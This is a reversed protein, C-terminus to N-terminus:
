AGNQVLGALAQTHVEACDIVEFGPEAGAFALFMDTGALIVVEANQESCLRAGVSFFTKRQAETACQSRAMAFYEDSVSSIDDGYPLVIEVGTLSGYLRSEIAVQSGLLGVRRLGRREIERGLSTLASVLPLQSIAELVRFCFLGTISTVAALTAGAGALLVVHHRFVRAQEDPADAIVNGLLVNMDAHAITLELGSSAAACNRVLGRYYFETAAPGIGGILGIHM